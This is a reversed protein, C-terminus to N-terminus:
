ERSVRIAIHVCPREPALRHISPLTASVTTRWEPVGTSSTRALQHGAYSAGASAWSTVIPIIFVIKAGVSKELREAAPSLRALSTQLSYAWDADGRFALSSRFRGLAPNWSGAYLSENLQAWSTARIDNPSIESMNAQRLPQRRPVPPVM